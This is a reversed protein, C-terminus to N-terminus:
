LWRCPRRSIPTAPQATADLWRTCTASPRTCRRRTPTAWRWCTEFHTLAEANADLTRAHQGAQFFYGAAKEDQGAMQLHHGIPSATAGAAQSTRVQRQLAEAVRRHLLRRRALGTEAYVLTRLLEHSFDYGSFPGAPYTERVLGQRVLRELCDVTEEESRGSAVRLTEFDFSRGIVAATALLQQSAEDAAALRAQLLSRVGQPMTDAQVSPDGVLWGALYEAVFLPLGESQQFLSQGLSRHAHPAGPLVAALAVVDDSRLRSLPLIQGMAARQVDRVLGRLRQVAPSDESRWAALVLLLRGALRRALDALVDLSTSDAWQLDDLFLVGAPGALAQVVQGLGQFFQAQAGPHDLPSAPPLARGAALEPLLRAAEVVASDPAAALLRAAEPRALAARLADIWVGYALGAEGEYCRGAIVTGGAAQVSALFEEALRTKGIGPEGELAAFRGDAQVQSRAAALASLEAQRGVLPLTLSSAPARLPTPSPTQAM